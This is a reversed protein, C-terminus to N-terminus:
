WPYRWPAGGARPKMIICQGERAGRVKCAQLCVGRLEQAQNGLSERGFGAEPRGGNQLRLLGILMKPTANILQHNLFRPFEVVSDIFVRFDPFIHCGPLSWRVEMVVVPLPSLCFAFTLRPTRHFAGLLAARHLPNTLEFFTALDLLHANRPLQSLTLAPFEQSNTWPQAKGLDSPDGAEAFVVASRLMRVLGVSFSCRWRQWM